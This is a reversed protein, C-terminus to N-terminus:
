LIMPSAASTIGSIILASRSFAFHSPVFHSPYRLAALCPACRGGQWSGALSPPAEYGVDLSHKFCTANGGGSPSLPSSFIHLLFLSRSANGDQGDQRYDTADEADDAADRADAQSRHGADPQQQQAQDRRTTPTTSMTNAMPAQDRLGHAQVRPRMMQATLMTNAMM